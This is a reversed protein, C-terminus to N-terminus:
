GDKRMERLAEVVNIQVPGIRKRLAAIREFVARKEASMRRLLEERTSLPRSEASPTGISAPGNKPKESTGPSRHVSSTM